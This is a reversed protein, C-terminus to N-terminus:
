ADPYSTLVSSGVATGSCMQSPAADGPMMADKNKGYRLALDKTDSFLNSSGLRAHYLIYERQKKM